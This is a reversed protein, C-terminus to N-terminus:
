RPVKATDFLLQKTVGGWIHGQCKRLTAYVDNPIRVWQEAHVQHKLNERCWAHLTKCWPAGHM